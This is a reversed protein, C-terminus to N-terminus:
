YDDDDLLVGGAIFGATAVSATKAWGPIGDWFGPGSEAMEQTMPMPGIFDLGNLESQLQRNTSQLESVPRHPGIFNPNGANAITNMKRAYEVGQATPPGVFYEDTAAAVQLAKRQMSDKYESVAKEMNAVAEASKQATKAANGSTINYAKQAGSGIGSIAEKIIGGGGKLMRAGLGTAGGIITGIGKGAANAISM